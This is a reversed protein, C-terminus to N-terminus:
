RTIRRDGVQELLALHAAATATPDHETALTRAARLLEDATWTTAALDEIAATLAAVDDLLALLGSM